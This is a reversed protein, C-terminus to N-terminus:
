PWTINAMGPYIYFLVPASTGGGCATVRIGYGGARLTFQKTEGTHFPGGDTASNFIARWPASPVPDKIEIKCYNAPLNNTITFTVDNNINQTRYAPDPGIPRNYEQYLVTGFHDTVQVDYFGATLEVSFSGALDLESAFRNAGWAGDGAKRIFLTKLPIKVQNNVIYKVIPLPPADRLPLTAPDGNVTSSKGYAWCETGDSKRVYYYDPWDPTSRATLVVTDGKEIATVWEFLIYHPGKVCSLKQGAIMTVPAATLTPTISPTFTATPSDTAGITPTFAGASDSTAPTSGNQGTGGGAAPAATQLICAGGFLAAGLIAATQLLKGIKM